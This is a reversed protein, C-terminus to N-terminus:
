IGCCNKYKKDSGCKCKENRAQDKKRSLNPVNRVFKTKHMEMGEYAELWLNFGELPFIIRDAEM